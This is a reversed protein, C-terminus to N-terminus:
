GFAQDALTNFVADDMPPNHLGARVDRYYKEFSYRKSLGRGGAIRMALDVVENATNTATVKVAALEGQLQIRNEPEQDWKEAIAYMFYRAQMLKWEMEGIKQKIHPVESIPHNLSNPQFEKAFKIADNRAAIAIGLYCAPIHLLWGKPVTSKQSAREVLRDEKVSVNDLVLDDSGTGRMGLTDWTHDVSVGKRGREILFWGVENLEEVYASVIYYDLSDAMTTFTKRGNIIYRDGNRVARTEPMGGRTPSGTAPESAARNLVKQGAAIEAAVEEFLESDWLQEDRLEMLIGSHWGVSLAVSGDGVALREQMLLFEYLSLNDGGLRDPLSLSFYNEKKLDALNQKSFSGEQDSETSRKKVKEALTEAKTYLRKQRDNKIMPQYLKNM